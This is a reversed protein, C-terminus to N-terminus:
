SKELYSKYHIIIENISLPKNLFIIKLKLNKNKVLLSDFNEYEMNNIIYKIYLKIKTEIRINEIIDCDYNLEYEYYYNNDSNKNVINNNYLILIIKSDYTIIDMKSNILYKLGDYYNTINNNHKIRKM